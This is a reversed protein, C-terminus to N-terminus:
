NKKYQSKIKRDFDSLKSGIDAPIKEVLVPCLKETYKFMIIGDENYVKKFENGRRPMYPLVSLYIYASLYLAEAEGSIGVAGAKANSFDVGAYKIEDFKLTVSKRFPAHWTIKDDYVTITVWGRPAVLLLLAMNCSLYVMALFYLALSEKDFMLEIEETMFLTVGLIIPALLVILMIVTTLWFTVPEVYTKYNRKM